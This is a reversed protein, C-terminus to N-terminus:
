DGTAFSPPPVFEFRRCELASAVNWVRITGDFSGTLLSRGDRLFKVRRVSDTHGRLESILRGTQVEYLCVNRDFGGVAVLRGDPSFEAIGSGYLEILCVDYIPERLLRGSAASRGLATPSSVADENSMGLITAAAFVIGIMAVPIMLSHLLM